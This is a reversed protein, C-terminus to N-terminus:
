APPTAPTGDVAPTGLPAVPTAEGLAVPTAGDPTAGPVPSAAAQAAAEIRLALAEEAAAILEDAPDLLNEATAPVEVSPPVGTGELFVQGNRVPRGVSAQFSVDGPLNWLYVAAEVGATPTYGVILHDPNEAMAAAFIECASACGDDIVVAVPLDWQVATPVVEQGGIDVSVGQEDILESRFLEFPADYFSGALYLASIGFGGGNDRVDIILSTAGQSLLSRLAYDWATSMLVPDAFFTNVRVYGIKSPLM